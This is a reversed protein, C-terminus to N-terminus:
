VMMTHLDIREPIRRIEQLTPDSDEAFRKSIPLARAIKTWSTQLNAMDCFLNIRKLYNRVTGIMMEKRDFQERKNQFFKLVSDFAYVPDGRAQEPFARAKEEKTGQYGLFDLFKTLRRIYKEKTAPAKLAYLSLM